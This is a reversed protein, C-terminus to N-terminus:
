NCTTENHSAEIFTPGTAPKPMRISTYM